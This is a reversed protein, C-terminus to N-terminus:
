SVVLPIPTFVLALILLLAIVLGQEGRRLRTVDDLPTAHRRGFLFVLGAWLLWGNWLVSLGILAAVVVWTLWRAREGILAYVVHGGDLQGAPILNLGTVLLGTWGAWAVPHLFVDQGGSPLLRGFMVMKITAYLLSNGEQLYSGGLPVAEVTSLKLGLVLLPLAVALGALPGAAGIALLQRRNAPPAKMQIVAGLTGLLSLPLPIFYPLSTAVGFHRSVLYHGFEHAVLIALLSAAFPWGSLLALPDVGVEQQESGVLLVSSLTALFLFLALWPRTPAASLKGPVGTIVDQDGVRRLIAIYGRSRFHSAVLQYAEASPGRLRGSLEFTTGGRIALPGYEAGAARRRISQVEFVNEIGAILSQSLQEVDVSSASSPLDDRM